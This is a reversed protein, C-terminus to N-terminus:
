EIISKVIVEECTLKLENNVYEPLICKGSSDKNAHSVIYKEEESYYIIIKCLNCSFYVVDDVIHIRVFEHNLHKFM